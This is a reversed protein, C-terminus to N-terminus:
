ILKQHKKGGLKFYMHTKTYRIEAVVQNKNSLIISKSKIECLDTILPQQDILHKECSDRYLKVAKMLFNANEQFKKAIAMKSKNIILQIEPLHWVKIIQEFLTITDDFM